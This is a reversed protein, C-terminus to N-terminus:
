KPCITVHVKGKETPKFRTAGILNTFTAQLKRSKEVFRLIEKVKQSTLEWDFFIRSSISPFTEEQLLLQLTEWEHIEQRQELLEKIEEQELWFVPVNEKEQKPVKILEMQHMKTEQGIEEAIRKGVKCLTLSRIEVLSEEQLLDRIIIKITDQTPIYNKPKGYARWCSIDVEKVNTFYESFLFIRYKGGPQLKQRM